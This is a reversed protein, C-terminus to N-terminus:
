PAYRLFAVRARGYRRADLMAFGAPPVFGAGTEVTVLAGPALWAARALADLAPAALASDWPPDLFALTAAREPRPPRTADTLLFRARDGLGCAKANREALRLAALDTDLFVCSAAGRSLAELGMAGTGCFADLAAAGALAGHAFPAHALVNFIAERARDSTPRIAADPPAELRRGRHKGGVIRM